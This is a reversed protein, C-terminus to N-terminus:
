SALRVSGALTPTEGLLLVAIVVATVPQLLTAARGVGSAMTGALGALLLVDALAM